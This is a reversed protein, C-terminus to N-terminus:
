NGVFDQHLLQQHLQMQRHLALGIASGFVAQKKLIGYSRKSM